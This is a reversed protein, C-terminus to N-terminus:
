KLLEERVRCAIRLRAVRVASLLTYNLCRYLDAEDPHCYPAFQHDVLDDLRFLEARGIYCWQMRKARAELDDLFEAVSTM